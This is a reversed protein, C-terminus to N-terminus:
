GYIIVKNNQELAPVLRTWVYRFNDIVITDDFVQDPMTGSNAMSNFWTTKESFTDPYKLVLYNGVSAATYDANINGTLAFDAQRQYTFAEVNGADFPTLSWGWYVTSGTVPPPIYPEAGENTTYTDMILFNVRGEAERTISNVILVNGLYVVEDTNFLPRSVEARVTIRFTKSYNIQAQDLSRNGATPEVKAWLQWSLVPAAINGGYSNQQFEYRNITIRRNFEAIM